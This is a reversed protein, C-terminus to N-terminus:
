SGALVSAKTSGKVHKSSSLIFATESPTALTRSPTHEVAQNCCLESFSIVGFIFVFKVRDLFLKSIPVNNNELFM